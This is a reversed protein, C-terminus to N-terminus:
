LATFRASAVQPLRDARTLALLAARQLAQATEARQLDLLRAGKVAIARHWFLGDWCLVWGFRFTERGWPSLQVSRGLRKGPPRLYRIHPRRPPEPDTSVRGIGLASAIKSM